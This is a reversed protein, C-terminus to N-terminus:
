QNIHTIEKVKSQRETKGDEMDWSLGCRYLNELVRKNILYIHMSGSGHINIRERRAVNVKACIRRETPM